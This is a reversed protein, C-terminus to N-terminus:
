TPTLGALAGWGYLGGICLCLGSSVLWFRMSNDPFAPKLLPFALARTLFVAAIVPLAPRAFPVTGILGAASWAWAACLGLMAAIGVTIVAPRVGGAEVARVMRRGAGMLRYAPAGIFICALHAVAALATLLGAFLLAQAGPTNM